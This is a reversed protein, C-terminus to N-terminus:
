YFSATDGLREISASGPRALGLASRAVRFVV